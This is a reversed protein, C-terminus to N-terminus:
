RRITYPRANGLRYPPVVIQSDLKTGRSVWRAKDYTAAAPAVGFRFISAYSDINFSSTAASSATRKFLRSFQITSSGTGQTIASAFTTRLYEALDGTSAGGSATASRVHGHLTTNGDSSSGASSGDRSVTKHSTSSSSGVGATSGFVIATRLHQASSSGLGSGTADVSFFQAGVYTLNDANYGFSSSSYATPM